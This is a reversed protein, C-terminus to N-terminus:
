SCPNDVCQPFFFNSRIGGSCQKNPFGVSDEPGNGPSGFPGPDDGHFCRFTVAKSATKSPDINDTRRM